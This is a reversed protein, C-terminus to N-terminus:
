AWGHGGRYLGLGLGSRGFGSSEIDPIFASEARSYGPNLRTDITTCYVTYADGWLYRHYGLCAESGREREQERMVLVLCSKRGVRGTLVSALASIAILVNLLIVSQRKVVGLRGHHSTALHSIITIYM